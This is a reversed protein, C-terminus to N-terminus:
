EEIKGQNANHQAIKQMKKLLDPENVVDLSGVLPDDFGNAPTFNKYTYELPIQRHFEFKTNRHLCTLYPNKLEKLDVMLDTPRRKNFNSTGYAVTLIHAKLIPDYGPKDIVLCYHPKDPPIRNGEEDLYPYFTYVIDLPNIEEYNHWETNDNNNANM